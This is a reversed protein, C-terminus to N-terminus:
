KALECIFINNLYPTEATEQYSRHDIVKLGNAHLLASLEECAFEQVHLPNNSPASRKEPSSVIFISNDTMHSKATEVLSAPITLHEIVDSAIIVDFTKGLDFESNLDKGLWTKEAKGDIRNGEVAIKFIKDPFDIGFIKDVWGLYRVLKAPHGCGLDLISKADRLSAFENAVLYVEKQYKLSDLENRIGSRRNLETTNPIANPFMIVPDGLHGVLVRTDIIATFGADRLAEFFNIDSRKNYFEGNKRQETSDHFYPKKLKKFVETDILTCGMAAVTVLYSRGDCDLDVPCYENEVEVFGVQDYPPKRKTIFGSVVSAEENKSLCELMHDPIIHDSDVSLIHTCGLSLATDVLINRADAVRYRDIGLFVITFRKSWKMLCGMHNFYVMPEIPGNSHVMFGVKSSENLQKM